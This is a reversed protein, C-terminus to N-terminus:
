ILRRKSILVGIILQHKSKQAMNKVFPKGRSIIPRFYYIHKLQVMFM